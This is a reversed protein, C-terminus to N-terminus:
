AAIVVQLNMPLKATNAFLTVNNTCQKVKTQPTLLM